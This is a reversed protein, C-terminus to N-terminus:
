SRLQPEPRLDAGREPDVAEPQLLEPQRDPTTPEPWQGEAHEAARPVAHRRLWDRACSEFHPGLIQAAFTNRAEQRAQAARGSEVLSTQAVTILNHFRIIPDAITIVPRRTTLPDNDHRLYGADILATLPRALTTRDRELLGGIKAPSSAGRAVANIIGYHLTSGSFNPDERLLYEAESRSFLAQGPNLLSDAVWEDFEAVSQPAERPSLARYGPSGGLAAHMRLAAPRDTIGWLNATTPLDFPAMRLDVAARGRLAKTGSLLTTMVSMASGCLVVRGGRHGEDAHSRDYSFQLLGPIEPSHGLWYPLEDIVLLGSRGQRQVVVNIASTLLAEWSAGSGILKPRIGAYRAIDAAFRQRAAPAAEEAVATIHLGGSAETLARLLYSKGVRRQGSVVGIRLHEDPHGVFGSLTAWEYDRSVVREPKL